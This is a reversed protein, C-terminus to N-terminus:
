NILQNGQLPAQYPGAATWESVGVTVQLLMVSCLTTAATQVANPSLVSKRGPQGFRPSCHHESTSARRLATQLSVCVLALTETLPLSVNRHYQCVKLIESVEDYMFYIYRFM